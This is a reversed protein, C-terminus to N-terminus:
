LTTMLNSDWITDIDFVKDEFGWGDSIINDSLNAVISPIEIVLQHLDQYDM